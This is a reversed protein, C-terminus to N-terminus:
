PTSFSRLVGAAADFQQFFTYSDNNNPQDVLWARSVFATEVEVVERWPQVAPPNVEMWRDFLKHINKPTYGEELKDAPSRAFVDDYVAHLAALARARREPGTETLKPDLYVAMGAHYASSAATKISDSVSTYGLVHRTFGRMACTRVDMLLHPSVNYIM